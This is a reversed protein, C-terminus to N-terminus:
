IKKSQAIIIKLEFFISFALVNRDHCWAFVLNSQGLQCGAGASRGFIARFRQRLNQAGQFSKKGLCIM